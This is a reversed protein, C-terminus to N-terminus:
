ACTDSSITFDQPFQGPGAPLRVSGISLVHQGTNTVTVTQAPSTSGPPRGGFDLQGPQVTIALRASRAFADALKNTDAPVTDDANGAFALVHGDASLGLSWHDGDDECGGPCRRTASPTALQAPLRPLRALERARDTVLDRIVVPCPTQTGDG